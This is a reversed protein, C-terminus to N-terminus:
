RGPRDRDGAVPHLDDALHPQHHLEGAGADDTPRVAPSCNRGIRSNPAQPPRSASRSGFRRAASRCAATASPEPASATRAPRSPRRAATSPARAPARARTRADRDVVGRPLREHDLDDPASRTTLATASFLTTTCQERMRPGASAPVIMASTPMAGHKRTLAKENRAINMASRVISAVRAASASAPRACARRPACPAASRRAARGLQQDRQRHHGQDPRDGEVELDQQRQQGVEGPM